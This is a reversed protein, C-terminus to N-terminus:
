ICNVPGDVLINAARFAAVTATAPIASAQHYLQVAEAATRTVAMRNAYYRVMKNMVDEKPNIGGEDLRSDSEGLAVFSNKKSTLRFCVQMKFPIAIDRRHFHTVCSKLHTFFVYLLGFVRFLVRAHQFPIGIDLIQELDLMELEDIAFIEGPDVILKAYQHVQESTVNLLKLNNLYDEFIQILHLYVDAM